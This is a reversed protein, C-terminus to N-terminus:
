LKATSDRIVLQVPLVLKRPSQETGTQIDDILMKASERGLEHIPQAVTTLKPHLLTCLSINDFGIVSLQEPIRVGLEDAAQYVGIAIADVMAFVATPPMDSQLVQKTLEYGPNGFPNATFVLAGDFPINYYLLADEYGLLREQQWAEQNTYGFVAIRAHGNQILHETALFGGKRNDTQVSNVSANDNENSVIKVHHDRLVKFTQEDFNGFTIVGEVRREIMQQIYHARKAADWDENAIFLSYGESLLIEEVGKVFEVFFQNTIDPIVIGVTKSGLRLGRAMANPSFGTQQIVKLIRNRTSKSVPATNNLVRSVTSISVGAIQAIDQITLHQKKEM